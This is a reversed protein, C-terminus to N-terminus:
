ARKNRRKRRYDQLWGALLILGGAVVTAAIIVFVHLPQNAWNGYRSSYWISFFLLFIGEVALLRVMWPNHTKRWWAYAQVSLLAELILFWARYRPNDWQDGGARFSSLLIWIWTVFWLCIWARRDNGAPMKLIAFISAFLFPLLVYWGAARLVNVALWPWPAPDFLAAPLLPQTLGYGTMFPLHLSAPLRKFVTQVWGSDAAIQSVDWQASAQLWNTFITVPAAGSFQGRALGFWLLVLAGALVGLTILLTRWSIRRGSSRLWAWLGLAPLAFVALGPQIFLMGALGGAMWAWASRRSSAQWDVIGWILMAVFAILFPERMQSSGLLLSEPYLVMIWAVPIATAEGWAQRAAKWALAVGIGSALAGMLVMLWARHADPSLFRYALASLALFGGYQDTSYTKDFARWIPDQSSALTWAQMDRNYADRYLYGANEIESAHGYAPLVYSWAVGLALRLVVALILMLGLLRGPRSGTGEDRCADRWLAAMAALGLLLILAFSLCGIWWTGGSLASLIAGLGLSAPLIWILDRLFPKM